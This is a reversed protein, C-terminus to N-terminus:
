EDNAACRLAVALSGEPSDDVVRYRWRGPTLVWTGGVDISALSPQELVGIHAAGTVHSEAAGGRSFSGRVDVAIADDLGRHPTMEVALGTFTPIVVPDSIRSSQAIEAAYGGVIAEERGLELATTDRDICATAARLLVRAGKGGPAADTSDEALTGRVPDLRRRVAAPLRVLALELTTTRRQGRFLPEAAALIKGAEPVDTAVALLAPGVLMMASDDFNEGAAARLVNELESPDFMAEASPNTWAQGVHDGARRAAGQLSPTAQFATAAALSSPSSTAFKSPSRVLFDLDITSLASRSPEAAMPAVSVLVATRGPERADGACAVSIGGGDPVVASAGIRTVGYSPLQISGIEPLQTSFSAIPRDLAAVEATTEISVFGAGAFRVRVGVSTGDRAIAGVPDGIASKQAVETDVDSVYSTETAAALVIRQGSEATGTRVVAGDLDCLRQAEAPSVVVDRPLVADAPLVAVRIAYTRGAVSQIEALERRIADHKAQTQSAVIVNGFVRLSSGPVEELPVVRDVAHIVADVDIRDRQTLTHWLNGQDLAPVDPLLPFFGLPLGYADARPEVLLPVSYTRVELRESPSDAPSATALLALSVAITTTM